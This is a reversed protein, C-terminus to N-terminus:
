ITALRMPSFHSILTAKNANRQNQTFKFIKEYTQSGNKDRKRQTHSNQEYMKGM